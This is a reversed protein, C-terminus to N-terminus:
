KIVEEPGPGGVYANDFAEALTMGYGTIPQMPLTRNFAHAMIVVRWRGAIDPGDLEVLRAFRTPEWKAFAASLKGRDGGLAVLRDIADVSPPVTVFWVEDAAVDVDLRCARGAVSSITACDFAWAIDAVCVGNKDYHSM